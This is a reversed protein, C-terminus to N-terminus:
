FSESNLANGMDELRGFGSRIGSAMTVSSGGEEDSEEQSLERQAELIMQSAQAAIRVDQPSPDAPALAARQVVRAKAITAEPSSEKSTDINVHGGIAYQKGNPGTQFEFQAGGSAFSGAAALHAQEHQRVELDRAKLETIQQEEEPTLEGTAAADASEESTAAESGRAAADPSKEAAEKTPEGETGSATVTYARVDSGTSLPIPQEKQENDRSAEPNQAGKVPIEDAAKEEKQVAAVVGEPVAGTHARYDTLSTAAIEM